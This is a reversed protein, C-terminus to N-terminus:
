KNESSIAGVKEFLHGMVSATVNFNLSEVILKILMNHSRNSASSIVYKGSSHLYSYYALEHSIIKVLNKKQRKCNIKFKNNKEKTM